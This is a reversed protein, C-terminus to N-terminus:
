LQHMYGGLIGLKRRQWWIGSMATLDSMLPTVVELWDAARTAPDSEEGPEALTPLQWYVRDGPAFPDRGGETNDPLKPLGGDGTGDGTGQPACPPPPPPPRDWTPPTGITVSTRGAAGIMSPLSPIGTVTMDQPPKDAPTYWGMGSLGEEPPPGKPIPTGQPTTSCALAVARFPNAPPTSGGGRYGVPGFSPVPSSVPQPEVPQPRIPHPEIPTGLPNTMELMEKAALYGQQYGEEYRISGLDGAVDRVDSDEKGGKVKTDVFGFGPQEVSDLGEEASQWAQSTAKEEELRLVRSWLADNQSQLQESQQSIRLMAEKMTTLIYRERSSLGHSEESSEIGPQLDARVAEAAESHLERDVEAERAELGAGVTTRLTTPGLVVPRGTPGRLEGAASTEAVRLETSTTSSGSPRVGVQGLFDLEEPRAAQLRMEDQARTSWFPNVPAEASAVAAVVGADVRSDELARVQDAGAVEDASGRAEGDRHRRAESSQDTLQLNGVAQLGEAGIGKGIRRRIAMEMARSLVNPEHGGYRLARQM